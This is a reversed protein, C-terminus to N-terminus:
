LRLGQNKQILTQSSLNWQELQSRLNMSAMLSFMLLINREELINHSFLGWVLIFIAFSLGITKVEKQANKISLFVLTPLIIVGLFGHEVIMMLYMNHPRIEGWIETYGIGHGFLPSELFQRWAFPIIDVRSTDDNVFEFKPNLLFEMRTMANNSLNFNSSLQNAILDSSIGLSILIGLLALIGYIVQRRPIIHKVTFIVTIIIWGIMAGRSFTLFAGVGCITLFLLRYKLPLISISFILGLLVACGATNPNEYFGAPRGSDNLGTLGSFISPYMFEYFLNAISIITVVFITRRVWIEINKSKSFLLLNLLLFFVSLIRNRFIQSIIESQDSFLFSVLSVVLYLGCWSVSNLSIYKYRSSFSFLLPIAAIGFCIIWTTPSPAIGIDFLYTALNTGFILVSSIALVCQYCLLLDIKKIKKNLTLNM